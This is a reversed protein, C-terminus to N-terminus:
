ETLKAPDVPEYDGDQWVSSTVVLALTGYVGAVAAALRPCNMGLM